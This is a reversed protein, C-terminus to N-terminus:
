EAEAAIRKSRIESYNTARLAQYVLDRKAELDLTSGRHLYGMLNKAQKRAAADENEQWQSDQYQM